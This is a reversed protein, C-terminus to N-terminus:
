FCLNLFKYWWIDAGQGQQTSQSRCITNSIYLQVSM